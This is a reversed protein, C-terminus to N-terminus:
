PDESCDKCTGYLVTKASNIRFGSSQVLQAQMYHAADNKMHFTRGCDLCTVHIADGCHASGVFQYYMDRSGANVHCRIINEKKFAALNRYVASISINSGSLAAHIERASFHEYPHAEFFAYLAKRQETQYRRAMM